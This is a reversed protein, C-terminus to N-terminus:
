WSPLCEIPSCLAASWGSIVCMEWRRCFALACALLRSGGLRSPSRLGAHSRCACAGRSSLLRSLRGGTVRIACGHVPCLCRSQHRGHLSSTLCVGGVRLSAVCDVEIVQRLTECRLALAQSGWAVGASQLRVHPTACMDHSARLRSSGHARVGIFSPTYLRRWAEFPLWLSATGSLCMRCEFSLPSETSGLSGLPQACISSVVAALSASIRRICVM